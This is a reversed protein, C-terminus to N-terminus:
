EKGIRRETSRAEQCKVQLLRGLVQARLRVIGIEFGDEDVGQGFFIWPGIQIREALDNFLLQLGCIEPSPGDWGKRAPMDQEFIQLALGPFDQPGALSISVEVGQLSSKNM